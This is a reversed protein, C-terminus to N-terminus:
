TTSSSSSRATANRRHLWQRYGAHCQVCSRLHEKAFENPGLPYLSDTRRLVYDFISSEHHAWHMGMNIWARKVGSSLVVRLGDWSGEQTPRGDWLDALHVEDLRLSSAMNALVTEWTTELLETTSNGALDPLLTVGVLHLKKLTRSHIQLFQTLTRGTTRMTLQLTRLRPWYIVRLMRMRLRGYRFWTPPPEKLVMDDNLRLTVRELLRGQHLLDALPESVEFLTRYPATINCELDTVHLLCHQIFFLQRSFQVNSVHLPSLDSAQARRYALRRWLDSLHRATWFGSGSVPLQLWKLKPGDGQYNAWGLARLLISLQATRDIEEREKTVVRRWRLRWWYTHGSAFRPSEDVELSTVGKLQAIADDLNGGAYRTNPPISSDPDPFLPTASPLSGLERLRLSEAFQWSYVRDLEYGKYFVRKRRELPMDRWEEVTLMNPCARPADMYAVSAVARESAKSHLDLEEEWDGFEKFTPLVHDRRLIITKVLRRLRDQVATRYLRSIERGRLQFRIKEFCVPTAVYELQKSVLRLKWRSNEDSIRVIIDWLEIPLPRCRRGGGDIIEM